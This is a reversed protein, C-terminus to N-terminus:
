AKKQKGNRTMSLALSFLRVQSLFFSQGRAVDVPRGLNCLLPVELKKREKLFTRREDARTPRDTPRDARGLCLHSAARSGLIM